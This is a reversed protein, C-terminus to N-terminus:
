TKFRHQSTNLKNSIAAAAKVATSPEQQIGTRTLAATGPDQTLAQRLSSGPQQEAAGIFLCAPLTHAAPPQAEGALSLESAQYRSETTNIGRISNHTHTYSILCSHIISQNTPDRPSCCGTGSGQLAEGSEQSAPVESRALSGSLMHGGVAICLPSQPTLSLFPIDDGLTHTPSFCCATKSLPCHLSFHSM